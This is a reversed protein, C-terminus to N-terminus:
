IRVFVGGYIRYGVKGTFGYAEPLACGSNQEAIDQAFHGSGSLSTLISHFLSCQPPQPVSCCHFRFQGKAGAKYGDGLCGARGQCRERGVSSHFLTPSPVSISVPTSTTRRSNASACGVARGCKKVLVGGRGLKDVFVDRVRCLKDSLEIDEVGGYGLRGYRVAVNCEDAAQVHLREHLTVQADEVVM